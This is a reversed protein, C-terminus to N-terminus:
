SPVCIRLKEGSIRITAPTRALLEGDAYVDLGDESEIQFESARLATVFRRKVHAGSYALPLTTLLDWRSCRGIIFANLEGDDLLAGPAIAIGGGYRHSNGFVAFMITEERRVGDVTLGIRLPRFEPLVRFIAYLYLLSGRLWTSHENVWRAVLSDFGVGAVGLFRVGNVEAVDIERTTGSLIVDCAREISQPIGLAGALDDGSGLPIVALTSGALDLNRLALNVSGDGGCVVLRDFSENESSGALASLDSPSTSRALVVAAGHRELYRVARDILREGRGRGAAPNFFLKLRM